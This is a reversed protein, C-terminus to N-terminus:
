ALWTDLTAAMDERAKTLAPPDNFRAEYMDYCHSTGEIYRSPSSPNLDHDYVSLTHWPDISGNFLFVKTANPSKGGYHKNSLAVSNAIDQATVGFGQTCYLDEFYKVTVTGFGFPQKKSDTSQYYAFETCTQWLWQRTGDAAYFSDWSEKKLEDVMETYSSDVCQGGTSKFWLSYRKIPDGYGKNTMIRCYSAVTSSNGVSNYQTAGMWDEILGSYFTQIAYPDSYNLKGECIGFLKNLQEDNKAEVLDQIAKFADNVADYCAPDFYKQANGVTEIYEVFDVEALVPASSAVGGVSSDPYLERYWIVLNGPYSGGFVVVKADPINYQEKMGKIFADLDALAQTSSLFRLNAVSTDSTPRSLGYFRHEPQFILAGHKKANQYMQGFTLWGSDIAGEGGIMVFIPGGKKYVADNVQYRQLWTEAISSNFHDLPQTFYDTKVADNARDRAEPPPPPVLSLGHYRGAIFKRFKEGDCLQSAM